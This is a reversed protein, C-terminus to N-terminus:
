DPCLLLTSSRGTQYCAETRAPTYESDSWLDTRAAERDASMADSYRIHEEAQRTCCPRSLLRTSSRDRQSSAETRAPTRLLGSASPICRSARAESMADRRVKHAMARLTYSDLSCLIPMNCQVQAAAPDSSHESLEVATCSCPLCKTCPVPKSARRTGQRDRYRPMNGAVKAPVSDQTRLCNSRSVICRLRRRSTRSDPM